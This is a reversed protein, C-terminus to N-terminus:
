ILAMQLSAATSCVVCAVSAWSCTITATGWRRALLKLKDDHLVSLDNPDTYLATLTDFPVGLDHEACHREFLAV